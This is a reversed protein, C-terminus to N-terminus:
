KLLESLKARLEDGKLDQAIIVGKEDLVFMQPIFKVKYKAAIPDDWFKLNSVQTWTLQDKAIAEKWQDSGNEKDLSVGIINLGKPHFENYIAVLEPNAVRCPACWSAWFDIITVKGMSQKLSVNKGTPDPATFDPAVKGIGVTGLEKLKKAIKKGPETSKVEPDLNNFLDQIQKVDPKPTKLLNNVLIVSIFAKPHSKIYDLTATQMEKDLAEFEKRLKNVIVTDRTQQALQIEAAREQQLAISKNRINSAINNFETLQENNYTGTIKSKTITDKNIEINIEANELILYPKAQEGVITLAHVAPEGTNGTFSFKGGEIKVTDIAIVGLSDDIKQLIIDKGDSGKVTGTLVFGDNGFKDCSFLLAPVALVILLKKM